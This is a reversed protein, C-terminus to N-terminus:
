TYLRYYCAYIHANHAHKCQTYIMRIIYRSARQGNAYIIIYYLHGGRSALVCAPVDGFRERHTLIYYTYLVIYTYWQQYRSM